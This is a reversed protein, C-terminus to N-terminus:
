TRVVDGSFGLRLEGTGPRDMSRPSSSGAQRMLATMQGRYHAQQLLLVAHARGIQGQEGLRAASEPPATLTPGESMDIGTVSLIREISELNHQAVDGLSGHEPATRFSLSQDAPKRCVARGAGTERDFAAIFDAVYRFM